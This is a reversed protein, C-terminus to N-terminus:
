CVLKQEKIAKEYTKGLIFAVFFWAALLGFSFYTCVAIHMSIGAPGFM